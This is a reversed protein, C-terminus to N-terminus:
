EAALRQSSLKIQPIFIVEIIKYPPRVLQQFQTFDRKPLCSIGRATAREKVWCSTGLFIGM